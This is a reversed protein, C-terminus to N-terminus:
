RGSNKVAFTGAAIRIQTPPDEVDRARNEVSDLPGVETRQVEAEVLEEVGEGHQREGCM